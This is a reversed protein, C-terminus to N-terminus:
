KVVKRGNIIYIGKKLNDLSSANVKRGDLSYISNNVKVDAIVSSVGTISETGFSVRIPASGDSREDTVFFYCVFQPITINKIKEGVCYFKYTYNDYDGVEGNPMSGFFFHLDDEPLNYGAGDLVGKMSVGINPANTNDYKKIEIPEQMNEVTHCMNDLVTQSVHDAKFLYPKYAEIEDVPTFVLNCRFAAGNLEGEVSSYELVKVGNAGFHADLDDIGYPLVLTRWPTAVYSVSTEKIYLTTNRDNPMAGVFKETFTADTYYYDYECGEAETFGAVPWSSPTLNSPTKQVVIDDYWTGDAKQIKYTVHWINETESNFSVPTGFFAYWWLANKEQTAQSGTGSHVAVLQNHSDFTHDSTIKKTTLKIGLDELYVLQKDDPRAISVTQIYPSNNKQAANNYVQWGIEKTNSSTEIYYEWYAPTITIGIVVVAEHYKEGWVLWRESGRNKIRLDYGDGYFAWQATYDQKMHNETTHARSRISSSNEEYVFRHSTGGGNYNRLFNWNTKTDNSMLFPPDFVYDVYVTANQAPATTIKQTLAADSYYTYTTYGRWLDQPMNTELSAGVDMSATGTITRQTGTHTKLSYTITVASATASFMALIFLLVFHMLNLTINKMFSDIKDQKM